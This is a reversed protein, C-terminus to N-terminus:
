SGTEVERPRANCTHAGVGSNKVKCELNLSLNKHLCKILQATEGAGGRKEREKERRKGM